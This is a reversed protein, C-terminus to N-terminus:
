PSKEGELCTLRKMEQACKVTRAGVEGTPLETATQMWTFIWNKITGEGACEECCLILNLLDLLIIHPDHSLWPWVCINM